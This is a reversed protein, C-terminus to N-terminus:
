ALKRYSPTYLKSRIFAEMDKPREIGALGLEFVLKAVRV